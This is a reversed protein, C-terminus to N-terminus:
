GLIVFNWRGIFPPPPKWQVAGTFKRSPIVVPVPGRYSDLPRVGALRFLPELAVEAQAGTSGAQAFRCRTLAAARKRLDPEMCTTSELAKREAVLQRERNTAEEQVVRVLESEIQEVRSQHKQLLAEVRAEHQRVDRRHALGGGHHARRRGGRVRRSGRPARGRGGGVPRNSPSHSKGVGRLTSEQQADRATRRNKSSASQEARSRVERRQHAHRMVLRFYAAADDFAAAEGVTIARRGQQESESV